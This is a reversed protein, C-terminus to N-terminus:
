DIEFALVTIDDRQEAKELRQAIMDEVASYQQSMTKESISEIFHVFGSRGMGGKGEVMNQDLLGDTTIYIKSGPIWAIENDEFSVEKKWSYGVSHKTGKYETIKGDNCVFLSLKAGSFMIKKNINDILCLAVDAGDNALSDKSEQGLAEKLRLHVLQLIESPNRNGLDKSLSDLISSLTMTMLAGPVGHGTCDGVALLVKNGDGRCWYMDGGVIDRPKWVVFCKDEPL